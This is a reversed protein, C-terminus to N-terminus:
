GGSYTKVNNVKQAAGDKASQWAVFKDGKAAFLTFPVVM